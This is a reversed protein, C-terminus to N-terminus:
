ADPSSTKGWSHMFEELSDEAPGRGNHQGNGSGRLKLAEEDGELWKRLRMRNWSPGFLYSRAKAIADRALHEGGLKPGFEALLVALFEDDVRRPATRRPSTQGEGPGKQPSPNNKIPTPKPQSPVPDPRAPVPNLIPHLGTSANQKGTQKTTAEIYYPERRSEGSHIGGVHGAKARAARTERVREASPNYELYNHVQFGGDAAEWLGVEVLKRALADPGSVMALRRVQASPIFGDTLYRSAYGLGCVFLWAALPGAEIVKPHDPFQDDLKVWTM